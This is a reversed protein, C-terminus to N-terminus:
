LNLWNPELPKEIKVIGEDKREESLPSFRKSQVFHTLTASLIKLGGLPCFPVSCPM